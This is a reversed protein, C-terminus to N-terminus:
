RPGTEVPQVYLPKLHEDKLAQWFWNRNMDREVQKKTPEANPFVIVTFFTPSENAAQLLIERGTVNKLIAPQLLDKELMADGFGTTVIGGGSYGQLLLGYERTPFTLKLESLNVPMSFRPFRLNLFNFKAERLKKNYFFIVKGTADWKYDPAQRAVEKLLDKADETGEAIQINPLPQALEAIVPVHCLWAVRALANALDGTIKEHHVAGDVPSGQACTPAGCVSFALVLFFSKMRTRM